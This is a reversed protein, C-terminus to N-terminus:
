EIIEDSAKTIRDIIAEWLYANKDNILEDKSKPLILVCKEYNNNLKSLQSYITRSVIFPDENLKILKTSKDEAFDLKTPSFVSILPIKPKYHEKFLGPSNELLKQTEDIVKFQTDFKSLLKNKLQNIDILGKRLIKIEDNNIQIISSEIGGKCEGGDLIILESGFYREVQEACTSSTKKFPNASPAAIPGTIENILSITLKHDPMRLGVTDFNSTIMDSVLETNKKLIFTIPGPWYTEALFEHIEDWEFALKRAQEVTGIHVILPDFLPRKKIKFINQIAAEDSIRAALGYVTETPVAIPNSADLAKQILTNKYDNVIM